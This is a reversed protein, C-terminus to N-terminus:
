NLWLKGLPILAVTGLIAGYSYSGSYVFYISWGVLFSNALFKYKYPHFREASQIQVLPIPNQSSGLQM